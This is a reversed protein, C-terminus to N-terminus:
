QIGISVTRCCGKSRDSMLNGSHDKKGDGGAYGCIMQEFIQTQKFETLWGGSKMYNDLAIREEKEFWSEMQPICKNKM